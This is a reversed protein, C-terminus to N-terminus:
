PPWDALDGPGNKIKSVDSWGVGAQGVILSM